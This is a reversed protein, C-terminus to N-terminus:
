GSCSGVGVSRNWCGLLSQLVMLPISNPDVSAAGKFAIALHVLPIDGNEM